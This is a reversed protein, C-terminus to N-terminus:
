KVELLEVDFELDSNPPILGGGVNQSGYGLKAPIELVRKGGVRMGAVGLEWGRIVQGAGLKFEFPRNRSYSSDFQKQSQLLRGSYHVSVVSGPRAEPGSGIKKDILKLGEAEGAEPVAAAKEPAAETTQVKAQSCGLLALLALATMSARM